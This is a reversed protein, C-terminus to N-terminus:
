ANRRRRSDGRPLYDRTARIPQVHFPILAIAEGLTMLAAEHTLCISKVVHVRDLTEIYLILKADRTIEQDIRFDITRLEDAPTDLAERRLQHATLILIM